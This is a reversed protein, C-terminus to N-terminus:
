QSADILFGSVTGVINTSTGKPMFIRPASGAQVFALVPASGALELGVRQILFNVGVELNPNALDTGIFTVVKFPATGSADAVQTSVHKVVLVKGAPVEPFFLVCSIGCPQNGGASYPTEVGRTPVPNAASNTVFVNPQNTISVAGSVTGTVPLPTNTVTVNGAIGPPPGPPFPQASSEMSISALAALAAAVVACKVKLYKSM